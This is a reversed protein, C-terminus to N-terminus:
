MEKLDSSVYSGAPAHSYSYWSPAASIPTINDTAHYTRTASPRPVYIPQMPIGLKVAIRCLTELTYNTDGREWRSVLGQSVGMLKALDKQSLGLDQRKMSIEAAILAQFTGLVIEEDPVNATLAKILDAATEINEM